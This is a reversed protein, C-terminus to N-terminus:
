TLYFTCKDMIIKLQNDGVRFVNFVVLQLWRASYRGTELNQAGRIPYGRPYRIKITIHKLKTPNSPHHGQQHSVVQTSSHRGLAQIDRVKYLQGAERADTLSARAAGSLGYGPISSSQHRRYDTCLSHLKEIAHKEFESWNYLGLTGSDGPWTNRPNQIIMDVVLRDGARPMEGREGSLQNLAVKIMTSVTSATDQITSKLQITKAHLEHPEGVTVDGTDDSIIRGKMVRHKYMQTFEAEYGNCIGLIKQTWEDIKGVFYNDVPLNVTPELEARADKLKLIIQEIHELQERSMLRDWGKM